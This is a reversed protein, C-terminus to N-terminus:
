EALLGKSCTDEEVTVMENELNAKKKERERKDIQSLYLGRCTLEIDMQGKRERKKGRRSCCDFQSKDLRKGVERKWDRKDTKKRKEETEQM